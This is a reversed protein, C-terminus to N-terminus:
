QRVAIRARARLGPMYDPSKDASELGPIIVRVVPIGFAASSLDVVVVEEIGAQRLGELECAIDADFTDNQWGPVDAFTRAHSVRLMLEQNLRMIQPSRTREYDRTLLDDRSGAIATLRSQAAETLARLLAISRSPHCGMGEACFLPRLVSDERETIICEFSPLGVDSTTEWVAVAIDAREFKDMLQRCDPDDVTDLDIRTAHLSPEDLLHWLTAADREVVECIAHSIAELLHNGGALGNSTAPFSGAGFRLPLTYNTHVMEYPVWTPEDNLLDYGEIWPLVLNPDFLSSTKRPLRNVDIVRHTYRLEEFTALKVASTIHEAHYAEISEMVGSAKAAALTLGKGQSVALSRSNPRCVMVVPIGISDLGTVDAIRTIGM